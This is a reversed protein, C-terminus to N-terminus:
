QYTAGATQRTKHVSRPKTRRPKIHPTGHTVVSSKSREEPSVPCAPLIVDQRNWTSSWQWSRLLLQIEVYSQLVWSVFMESRVQWCEGRQELQQDAEVNAVVTHCLQFFFRSSVSATSLVLRSVIAEYKYSLRSTTTTTSTNTSANTSTNTSSNASKYM